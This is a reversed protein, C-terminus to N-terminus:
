CDAFDLAGLDLVFWVTPRLTGTHHFEVRCLVGLRGDTLGQEQEKWTLGSEVGGSQVYWVSERWGFKCSVLVTSTGEAEGEDLVHGSSTIRHLACLVGSTERLVLDHLHDLLGMKEASGFGTLRKHCSDRCVGWLAVTRRMGHGKRKKVPEIRTESRKQAKLVTDDRETKSCLLESEKEHQM